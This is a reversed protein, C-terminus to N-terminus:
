DRVDDASDVITESVKRVATIAVGAEALEPITVESRYRVGPEFAESLAVAVNV